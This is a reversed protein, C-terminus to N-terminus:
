LEADFQLQSNTAYMEVWFATNAEQTPLSSSGQVLVCGYKGIRQIGFDATFQRDDQARTSWTGDSLVEPQARMPQYFTVPMYCSNAGYSIGMWGMQDSEHGDGFSQFYRLCRTLEEGYSRMEFPTAVSGLELQVGTIYWTANANAVLQVASGGDYGGRNDDTGWTELTSTTYNSGAGWNWMIRLSTANDNQWTGSSPGTVTITKKEWTNASSITYKTSYTQSLDKGFMLGYDGTVSSKVWFSLTIPKAQATGWNAHYFDQGEMKYNFYNTGTSASISGASGGVTFKLAYPFKTDSTTPTDSVTDITGGTVGARAEWRDARFIPTNGVSVQSTGRQWVQMAGNIIMNRHSLPGTVSGDVLNLEDTTATLGDLKDFETSTVGTDNLTKAYNLDATSSTTSAITHALKTAKTTAM